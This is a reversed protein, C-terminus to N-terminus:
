RVRLLRPVAARVVDRGQRARHRFGALDRGTFRHELAAPVEVVRFGLRAADATMGAEVGFGAALPRCAELAERRIARQGSLPEVADFGSIARILRRAARKVLGFGGRPPRPLIAAALDAEGDVVPRLVPGLSGASDGLDGDAFLYVDAPPVLEVAAELAGGKGVGRGRALVRAGAEAAVKATGDSSGDVVVVVEDVSELSRLAAVTDSVRDAEDRAAVIALVRTM